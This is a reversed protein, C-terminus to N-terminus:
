EGPGRRELEVARKKEPKVIDRNEPANPHVGFDWVGLNLERDSLVEVLCYEGFLLPGRPQLKLWHGGPLIHAETEIVDENPRANRPDAGPDFSAVVRLDQRVDVRVIVYRSEPAPGKGPKDYAQQGHTDVTIASSGTPLDAVDGLRIYLEPQPVHMQADAKEGKLQVITHASAAPNMVARLINHGTKKNLDTQQQVLPVLEPGGHYTDLALVADEVPLRLTVGPDTSLDPSVTAREAEERALEPDLPPPPMAGDPGPTHQQEWQKTAPLDVLELPIDESEGGREASIYTVRKGVVKYSMVLQYSGDKLILRTRHPATSPASPDLATRQAHAGTAILAAALLLSHPRM